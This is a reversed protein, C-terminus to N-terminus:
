TGLPLTRVVVSEGVEAQFYIFDMTSLTQVRGIIVFVGAATLDPTQGSKDDLAYDVIQQAAPNNESKLGKLFADLSALAGDRNVDTAPEKVFPKLIEGASDEIFDAMRRRAITKQGPVLSTTIGSQFIQGQREFKLAVIGNQRFNTYDGISLGSVGRQFGLIPSLVTPVPQSGQGPNRHPPLVSLLSALFGDMRVDLVGDLTTQGSTATKIAINSAERVFMRGGPWCYNVREDRNAGVGPDTSALAAAATQTDLGPASIFIRGVGNQSSALVHQKGYNRITSSTRAAWVINVSRAPEDETLLSDFAATYLAELDTAVAANPPQITASYVVAGSTALTLFHLDSLTDWSAATPTAPAVTSATSTGAAITADLPRAPVTFGSATALSVGAGTATLTVAASDATAAPHIRWPITAQTPVTWSSGDMQEITIPGGAPATLIRFTGHYAGMIGAVGYTADGIVGLVIVDGVHVTGAAIATAISTSTFAASTGTGSALSGDTGTLSAADGSFRVAGATRVRNGAVTKFEYGAAVIGAQMAVAPNPNTASANTPLGRVIRAAKASAINVPLLLLRSFTKGKLAAVFGNGDSTGFAGLTSDFGGVRNLADQQSTVEVASYKTTLGGSGDPVVQSSVDAFEGICCAVGTGVGSFTAPQPLDGIIVGEIQTLQQLSPAFSFRRVFGPV